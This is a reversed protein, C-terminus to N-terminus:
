KTVVGEFHTTKSDFNSGNQRIVYPFDVIAERQFCM